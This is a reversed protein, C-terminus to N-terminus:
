IGSLVGDKQMRRSLSWGADVQAPTMRRQLIKPAFHIQLNFDRDVDEHFGLNAFLAFAVIPDMSVGRGEAYMFALNYLAPAEAQLVAKQYWSVAQSYDRTVGYGNAYMLGLGFQGGGSGQAAAQHFLLMAKTYDHPVGQGKLYMGGLDAQARAYGQMTAKHYWAMAQVNDQTVGHGNVYLSALDTQARAFGQAAAKVYWIAAQADDRKVGADGREYIEGLRTEAGAHGQAAAMEFWARAQISNRPIVLGFLNAIGLQYEGVADRREAAAHYRDYANSDSLSANRASVDEKQFDTEANDNLPEALPTFREVMDTLPPARTTSARRNQSNRLDIAAQAPDCNIVVGDNYCRDKDRACVACKDNILHFTAADAGPIIGFLGTYVHQADEAYFFNIAKFTRADAGALESSGAYACRDDVHWQNEEGLNRFSRADCAHLAQTCLFVDHKDRLGGGPIAELTRGDSGPIPERRCYGRLDDKGAAAELAVFSAADAGPVVGGLYYVRNKDKAYGTGKFAHFTASDAGPIVYTGGMSYDSSV